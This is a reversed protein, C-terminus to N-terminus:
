QASYKLLKAQRRGFPGFVSFDCYPSMDSSLKAQLGSLQDATPEEREHPRGGQVAIYRAWMERVKIDPILAVEADLSQDLITSM